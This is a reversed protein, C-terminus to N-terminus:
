KADAAPVWDFTRTIAKKWGAYLEERKAGEMAPAWEKDLSWNADLEETCGWVGAALGAAYAQTVVDHATCCCRHRLPGM